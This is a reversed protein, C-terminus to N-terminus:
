NKKCILEIAEPITNWNGMRKRFEINANSKKM